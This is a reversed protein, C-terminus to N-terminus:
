EFKAPAVEVVDTKLIVPQDSNGPTFTFTTPIPDTTIDESPLKREVYFILVLQETRRGNIKKRGIGIAHANYEQMLEWGHIKKFERLWAYEPRSEVDESM